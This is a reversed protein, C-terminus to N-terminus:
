PLAAKLRAYAESSGPETSCRLESAKQNIERIRAAGDPHDSLWHPPQGGDGEKELKEFFGAAGNCAYDEADALYTVSRADAEAEQTRGYKLELLKTGALVAAVEGSGSDVALVAALKLLRRRNKKELQDAVHREEAHAIEHGLVGALHEERDLYKILGTYVYIFGGATCFANLTKDDHIIKVDQYKFIDKHKIAPSALVRNIIGQILAYAEPHEAEDLVPYKAPDANIQNVTEMGIQVDSEVPIEKRLPGRRRRQANADPPALTLCLAGLCLTILMRKM